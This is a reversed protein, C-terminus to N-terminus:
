ERKLKERIRSFLSVAWMMVLGLFLGIGFIKWAIAPSSDISAELISLAIAPIGILMAIWNLRRQQEHMQEAKMSQLFEHMQQVEDNVENYLQDIQFIEQLKKYYRHHNHSQMAQKYYGLATFTLLSDRTNFFANERSALTKGGISKGLGLLWNNAVQESLKILAFRQQLAIIFLLFYHKDLHDPLVQNFFPKDPANLSIFAGGNLSITFWQSETYHLLHPNSLDLEEHPAFLHQESHFFNRLRYIVTPFESELAQTLFLKAYPLFQGPIFVDRWWKTSREDISGTMLLAHVLDEVKGRGDAHSELGGSPSPYYPEKVSEKGNKIVNTSAKISVRRQGMFFRFYHIFDFWDNLIQNRSLIRADLSLIGVGTRFLILKVNEIYFQIMKKSTILNWEIPSSKGGGMGVAKSQLAGTSIRWVGVTLRASEEAPNLYNAIHPLLDEGPLKSPMWIRHEKEGGIWKAQELAKIHKVCDIEDFLFPYVFSVSTIDTNVEM